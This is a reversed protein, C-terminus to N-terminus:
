GEGKELAPNPNFIRALYTTRPRTDLDGLLAYHQPQTRLRRVESDRDLDGFRIARTPCAAECATVVEGDRIERNEKEAARRARSIRQVCYTCKEMVGRARVTVDPNKQADLAEAGLNKYEQGSAYGFFNFRRVKYPCNAQCFRTGVCRNYVQVNLGESDHISAAVPCVPECPAKECQMCPVPNFGAVRTQGHPRDESEYADIRIWHMIRGWEIEEPGVVPINNEAQCAMVCANCGICATNDIVMAWAPAPRPSPSLLSPQSAQNRKLDASPLSALTLVPFLKKTDADLRTVATAIAINEAAPLREIKIRDLVWPASAERLDFANVGVDSGIAGAAARGNGLTLSMVGPAHGEQILVPVELLRKGRTLLVKHGNQLGLKVADANNMGLANGWVQKTFPKPCEQLWANHAFRGDGLSPDAALVLTAGEPPQPAKIEPFAPEGPNIPPFATGLIVGDQLAKRWWGEFDDKGAQSRWTERVLDYPKAGSSGSVIAILDHATKTDYLPDILPQVISATGDLARLDSWGELAHSAPLRWECLESTEDTIQSLHARFEAKQLASRFDLEPPADYVPNCEITILTKVQGANLCQTLAELGPQSDSGAVPDLYAVPADLKANIWCVLARIDPALAPGALVLGRGTNSKLDALVAKSFHALDGGLGPAPLTAGLGIAIACALRGIEAPSLALVHDANAGTLSPVPEVAYLRLMEKTDRRARRRDSFARGMPIQGPGADLFRSDLSLVVSADRLRPLIQLPRKFAIKTFEQPAEDLPEYAHWAMRPYSSQLGKIQRLLTPSTIRGTLLRLGAGEDARHIEQRKQWASEFDPWSRIERGQRVAQSRDPSYLNFIEAEAFADTSGLSGPHRPNGEIKTPRGENSTVIVGRGYGGLALTTAFKLPIGPTLREPMNVYPVIEEHPKGCGSAALAMTSALLKLADRRRLGSGDASGKQPNVPSM